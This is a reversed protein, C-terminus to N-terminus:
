TAKQKEPLQWASQFWPCELPQLHWRYDICNIPDTVEFVLVNITSYETTHVNGQYLSCLTREKTTSHHHDTSINNDALYRYPHESRLKKDIRTSIGSVYETIIAKHMETKISPPFSTKFLRAIQDCYNNASELIRNLRKLVNEYDEQSLTDDSFFQMKQAGTLLKEYTDYENLFSYELSRVLETIRQRTGVILGFVAELSQAKVISTTPHKMIKHFAHPISKLTDQVDFHEDEWLEPIGSYLQLMIGHTLFHNADIGIQSIQNAIEPTFEGGSIFQAYSMKSLISPPYQRYEQYLSKISEWSRFSIQGMGMQMCVLFGLENSLGSIDECPKIQIRNQQNSSEGIISVLLSPNFTIPDIKLQMDNCRQAKGEHPFPCQYAEKAM